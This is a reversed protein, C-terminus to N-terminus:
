PFSVLIYHFQEALCKFIQMGRAVPGPESKVELADRCVTGLDTALEYREQGTSEATYQAIDENKWELVFAEEGRQTPKLLFLDTFSM